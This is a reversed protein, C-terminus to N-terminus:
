RALPNGVVIVAVSIRRRPRGRPGEVIVLGVIVPVVVGRWRLDDEALFPLLRRLRRLELELIARLRLGLVEHRPVAPVPRREPFSM